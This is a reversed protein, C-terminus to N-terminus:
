AKIEVIGGFKEETPEISNPTLLVALTPNVKSNVDKLRTESGIGHPIKCYNM